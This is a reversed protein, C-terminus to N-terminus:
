VNSLAVHHIKGEQQLEAVTEMSADFSVALDPTHLQFVEILRSRRQSKDQCDLFFIHKKWVRDSRTRRWATIGCFHAPPM